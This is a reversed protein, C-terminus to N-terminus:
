NMEKKGIVVTGYEIGRVTEVIVHMGKRIDLGCPDFYYIKGVPKFRIGIIEIM